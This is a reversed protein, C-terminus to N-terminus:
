LGQTRDPPADVFCIELGPQSRYEAAIKAGNPSVAYAPGLGGRVDTLREPVLEQPASRVVILQPEFGSEARQTSEFGAYVFGTGGRFWAQRSVHGPGFEKVLQRTAVDVLAIVPPGEGRALEVVVAEAAPSFAVANGSVRSVISQESSNSYVSDRLRLERVGEPTRAIYAIRGGDPTYQLTGSVVSGAALAPSPADAAAAPSRQDIEREVLYDYGGANDHLLLCVRKGNPHVAFSTGRFADEGATISALDAARTEFLIRPDPAGADFQQALLVVSAPRDGAALIPIARNFPSAASARQPPLGADIVGVPRSEYDIGRRFPPVLNLVRGSNAEVAVVGAAGDTLQGREGRLRVVLYDSRGAWTLDRV